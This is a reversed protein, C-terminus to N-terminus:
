ASSPMRSLLGDRPSPSTYLLCSVGTDTGFVIPVGYEYAEAFTNIAIPGIEAAKPRVLDPFFGDIKAKEVVWSGALLTPVFVTGRQKMLRMINRDMFTGHEISTVGAIVARKMGEAGHAHAAVKM